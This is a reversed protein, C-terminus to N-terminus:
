ARAAPPATGAHFPAWPAPPPGRSTGPGGREPVPGGAGRSGGAGPGGGGERGASHSGATTPGATARPNSRMANTTDRREFRLRRRLGEGRLALSPVGRTVWPDALDRGVLRGRLYM